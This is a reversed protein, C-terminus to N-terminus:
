RSVKASKRSVKSEKDVVLEEPDKPPRTDKRKITGNIIEFNEDNLSWGRLNNDKQYDLVRQAKEIPFKADTDGARLVVITLDNSQKSM